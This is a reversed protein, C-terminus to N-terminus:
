SRFYDLVKELIDINTECDRAIEEFHSATLVKEVPPKVNDHGVVGFAGDAYKISYESPSVDLVTATQGSRKGRKITVEDGAKYTNSTDESM